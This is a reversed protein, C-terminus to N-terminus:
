LNGSCSTKRIDVYGLRPLIIITSKGPTNNKVYDKIFYYTDLPDRRLVTIKNDASYFIMEGPGKKVHQEFLTLAKDLNVNLKIIPSDIHTIDKNYDALVVPIYKVGISILAYYRHHGDIISLSDKDVIIPKYIINDSRIENLIKLYRERIIEEHPKLDEHYYLLINSEDVIPM